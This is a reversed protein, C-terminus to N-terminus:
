EVACYGSDDAEISAKLIYNNVFPIYINVFPRRPVM